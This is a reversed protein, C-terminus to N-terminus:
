RCLKSDASSGIVDRPIGIGTYNSTVSTMFPSKGKILHELLILLKRVNCISSSKLCINVNFKIIFKPSVARYSAHLHFDLYKYVLICIYTISLQPKIM